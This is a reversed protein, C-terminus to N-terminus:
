DMFLGMKTQRLKQLRNKFSNISGADIAHQPLLNWKNIVRQSFFHRRLDLQCHHKEIKASHGRTTTVSSTTFLHDFPLLSLGKYMKFVELLDARNRREELTWIGLRNLREEYQLSKLGPVMRTFRHQVRELLQKDKAYYPSWASVSYELHPRVLTKYLRVLIDKNRYSITRGILGLAKSAKSYALQCQKSPKLNDTILIGLDREETVPELKYNGMFYEYHNNRHGLHMVKCKSANFPMQWQESWDMLQNLDKQMMIKDVVNNVTGFLKTDDAFKLISCLLSTDIDNIFILFLLPGLVSGQPVGSTVPEWASCYGDICVRQRRGNLWENIWSWVKGCIGHKDIKELLRLHPVKDFAKAFDLYIVDVCDHNDLMKTVTDLFQLLNSLCSGGRRFGHQTAIILRNSELHDVIADRVIMEFIMCIRSTLSVPRYNEIHNKNGKKFVPIVNSSKWDDPVIGTDISARMIMAVPYSIVDKLEILLRPCLDDVGTAKDPRLRDFMKKVLDETIEINCLKTCTSEDFMPNIVPLESLNESTFVSAFYQNFRVALEQPLVTAGGQEDALPGVTTKAKTRSRVYAYFSKRDTDINMALKKEFNRKSRRIELAAERSARMYAPHRENKYKQYTKRKRKILKVAKYSLWPAKRLRTTSNKVPIFQKELTKLLHHFAQWQENANGQLVTSWDTNGLIHRFTSFDARAYDLYSRNRLSYVPSLKVEWELINHDSSGFRNIVSVTDIMDPESTIVLDLVAGHCTGETVHQTLFGDEIYDVFNQSSSSHGHSITWDIDPFNFDGMLLLPKGRVEALMDCLFDDNTQGVINTNQSRYCVGILLEDNHRIKVRCWIQDRFKNSLKVEVAKLTNRVFLLVGGGRHGSTRDSRFLDYGPVSFESDSIDDNGWSETIGIVEPTTAAVTAMLEDMKNRLSRANFYM